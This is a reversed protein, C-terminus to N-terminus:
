ICTRSRGCASGSSHSGRNSAHHARRATGKPTKFWSGAEDRLDNGMYVVYMVYTPRLSALRRFAPVETAKPDNDFYRAARSAHFGAAGCAWVDFREGFRDHRLRDYFTDRVDLQM